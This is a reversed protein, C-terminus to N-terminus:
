TSGFTSVEARAEIVEGRDLKEGTTEDYFEGGALYSMEHKACYEAGQELQEKLGM